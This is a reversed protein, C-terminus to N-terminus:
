RSSGARGTSNPRRDNCGVPDDPRHRRHHVHPRRARVRAVMGAPPPWGTHACHQARDIVAIAGRIGAAAVLAGDASIAIGIVPTDGVDISGRGEGTPSLFWVKGGAGGAAIEGDTAVAVANLPTALAWASSARRRRHELALSSGSLFPSYAIVGNRAL